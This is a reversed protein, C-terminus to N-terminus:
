SLLEPTCTDVRCPGLIGGPTSGAL